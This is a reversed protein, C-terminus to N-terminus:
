AAALKNDGVQAADAKKRTSTPKAAAVVPENIQPAIPAPEDEFLIATDIAALVPNKPDSEQVVRYLNVSWKRIMESKQKKSVKPPKAAKAKGTGEKVPKTLAKVVRARKSLFELVANFSTFGDHRYEPKDGEKRNALSKEKDAKGAAFHPVYWRALNIYNDATKRTCQLKGNVWAEWTIPPEVGQTYEKLEALAKGQEIRQLLIQEETGEIKGEIELFRGLADAIMNDKSNPTTTVNIEM